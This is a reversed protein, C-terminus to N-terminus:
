AERNAPKSAEGFATLGTLWTDQKLFHRDLLFLLRFHKLHTGAQHRVCSPLAGEEGGPPSVELIGQYSVQTALAPMRLLESSSM